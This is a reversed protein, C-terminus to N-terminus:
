ANAHYKLVGVILQDGCEHFVINGKSRFVQADGCALKRLAHRVGKCAHAEHAKFLVLGVRERAPLLLADGDGAGKGHMGLHKNQVLRGRHEVRAAAVTQELHALLEIACAHGDHHDGMKHFFRGKGVTDHNEVASADGQFAGRCVNEGACILQVREIELLRKSAPERQLEFSVPQIDRGMNVFLRSDGLNAGDHFTM